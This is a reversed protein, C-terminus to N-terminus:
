KRSPRVNAATKKGAMGYTRAMGRVQGAVSRKLEAPGLVEVHSGWSLIWREVEPLSGLTMKLELRGDRLRHIKQSPHWMREEVLRGAWADFRLRIEYQGRGSYIGFSGKLIRDPALEPRRRFSKGTERVGRMRSLAFTRAAKRLPDYAFLYWQNDMCVVHHPEVTRAEWTQSGLKHYEFAIEHSHVVARSLAEFLQLDGQPVGAARFSFFSEWDAAQVMVHDKMGQALKDFAARLPAAFSSGQYQALAKQAVFLALLEGESVQMTPFGGVPESYYFGFRTADYEIPLGLQDRMFDIDRQITKPVVEFEAALATCNPFGGETLAQHLRMMRALPPRSLKEKPKM